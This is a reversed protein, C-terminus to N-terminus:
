LTSLLEPAILCLYECYRSTTYKWTCVSYTQSDCVCCLASNQSSLQCTCSNKHKLSSLCHRASLLPGALRTTRTPRQRSASAQPLLARRKRQLHSSWRLSSGRAHRKKPIGIAAEAWEYAEDNTPWEMCQSLVPTFKEPHLAPDQRATSSTRFRRRGLFHQASESEISPTYAM